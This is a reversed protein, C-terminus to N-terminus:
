KAAASRVDTVDIPIPRDPAFLPGLMGVGVTAGPVTRFSVRQAIRGVLLALEYEAFSAGVCRRYGGGFPTFEYPRLKKGLMQEPEFSEPSAFKKLDRTFLHTYCSVIAGAPLHHGEFTLARKLRRSLNRAIGNMRFSEDVVARLYPLREAIRPEFQREPFAADMEAALRAQAAENRGLHFFAWALIIATTDHGALLITLTEDLAEAPSYPRGSASARRLIFGLADDDGQSLNRMRWEIHEILADLLDRGARIPPLKGALGYLGQASLPRMTAPDRRGFVVPRLIEGPTYLAMVTALSTHGGDIFRKALRSLRDYVPGERLGLMAQFIVAMSLERAVDLADFRRGPLLGDIWRDAAEVIVAGYSRMREGTIAAMTRARAAVHAEGELFLISNPGLFFAGIDNVHGFDASSGEVLKRAASESTFVVIPGYRPVDLTFVDGLERRGREMLVEPKSAFLWGQEIPSLPLSPPLSPHRRRSGDRRLLDLVRLSIM